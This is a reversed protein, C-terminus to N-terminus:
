TTEMQALGAEVRVLTDKTVQGAVIMDALPMLISQTVYSFLNQGGYVYENYHQTFYKPSHILPASYYYLTFTDSKLLNVFTFGIYNIDDVEEYSLTQKITANSAAIFTVMNDLVDTLHAIHKLREPDVLYRDIQEVSILSTKLLYNADVPDIPVKKLALLILMVSTVLPPIDIASKHMIYADILQFVDEEPVGAVDIQQVSVNTNTLYILATRDRITSNAYDIVLAHDKTTIMQRLVDM